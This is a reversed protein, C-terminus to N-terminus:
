KAGHTKLNREAETERLYVPAVHHINEVHKLVTSGKLKFVDPKADEVELTDVPLGQRYTDLHTYHEDELLSVGKENVEYLGLFAHGRRADIWSLVTGTKATAKLALSSVTYLPIAQAWAMMKAVVVGIRVGTYSGPGIGVIISTLDEPKYSHREFMKSLEDMLRVSHNKKGKRYYEEILSAGDDLSIFLYDTASDLVLNLSSTPM